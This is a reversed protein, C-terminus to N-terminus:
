LMKSAQIRASVLNIINFLVSGLSASMNPWSSVSLRYSQSRAFIELPSSIFRNTISSQSLTMWIFRYPSGSIGCKPCSLGIM